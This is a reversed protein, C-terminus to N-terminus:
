HGDLFQELERLVNHLELALRRDLFNDVAAFGRQSREELLRLVTVRRDHNSPDDIVDVLNDAGYTKVTPLVCVGALALHFIASRFVRNLYLSCWSVSSKPRATRTYGSTVSVAVHGVFSCNAFEGSRFASSSFAMLLASSACLAILVWPWTRRRHVRSRLVDQQVVCARQVTKTTCAGSGKM